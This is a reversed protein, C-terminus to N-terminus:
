LEIVVNINNGVIEMFKTSWIKREEKKNIKNEATFSILFQLKMSKKSEYMKQIEAKVQKEIM